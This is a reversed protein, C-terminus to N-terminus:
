TGSPRLCRRLAPGATPVFTTDTAGRLLRNLEQLKGASASGGSGSARPRTGCAAGISCSSAIAEMPRRLQPAPESARHRRRRGRGTECRRADNGGACGSPRVPAGPPHRRGSQRSLPDRPSRGAGRHRGREDPADARRGAHAHEVAGRRPAGPSAAAETGAAGHRCSQRDRRGPRVGPFLRGAGAASDPGPAPGGAGRRPAPPHASVGDRARHERSLLADRRRRLRSAAMPPAAGPLRYRGRLGGPGKLHPLVRSRRVPRRADRRSSRMARQARGAGGPHRRAGDTRLRAGPGRDRPSIPRPDCLGHGRVREAARLAEDVLSVSEFFAPWDFTSMLRLSTIINRVTVNTAAQRQHEVRVIEDPATGRAALHDKLWQWAPTSDPDQERLRQVLQVVFATRM